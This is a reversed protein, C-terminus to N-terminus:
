KLLVVQEFDTVVVDDIDGMVGNNKMGFEGTNLSANGTDTLDIIKVTDWIVQIKTAAGSGSIRIEFDYDTGLQLSTSVGALYSEVGGQRRYLEVRNYNPEINVFYYNNIDSYRVVLRMARWMEPGSTSIPSAVGRFVYDPVPVSALVKNFANARLRKRYNYGDGSFAQMTGDNFNDSLFEHYTFTKLGRLYNWIDHPQNPPNTQFLGFSNNHTERFTFPWIPMGKQRAYDYRRMLELTWEEENDDLGRKTAMTSVEGIEAKKGFYTVIRDLDAKFNHWSEYLTFYIKNLPGLTATHWNDSKYWGDEYGKTGPFNTQCAIVLQKIRVPLNTDNFGPDGNNHLSIENGVLFEDAGVSHAEAADAIVKKAYQGWTADTLKVHDDNETWVVYMNRAKAKQVINKVIELPDTGTGSIHAFPNYYVKLKHTVLQIQALDSDIEADTLRLYGMSEHYYNVGINDNSPIALMRTTWVVRPYLAILGGLIGLVVVLLSLILLFRYHSKKPRKTERNLLPLTIM